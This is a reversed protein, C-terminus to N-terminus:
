PSSTERRSRRRSYIAITAIILCCAVAMVVKEWIPLPQIYTPGVYFTMVGGCFALVFSVLVLDRKSM